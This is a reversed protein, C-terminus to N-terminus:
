RHSAVLPISVRSEHSPPVYLSSFSRPGKSYLLIQLLTVQQVFRDNEISRCWTQCLSLLVAVVVFELNRAPRSVKDGISDDGDAVNPDDDALKETSSDVVVELKYVDLLV